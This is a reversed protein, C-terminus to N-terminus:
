YVGVDGTASDKGKGKGEIQELLSEAREQPFSVALKVYFSSRLNHDYDRHVPDFGRLEDLAEQIFAEKRVKDKLRESSVISIFKKILEAQLSRKSNFVVAFRM